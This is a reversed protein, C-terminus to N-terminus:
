GGAVFHVWSKAFPSAKGPIATARQRDDPIVDGTERSQVLPLQDQIDDDRRRAPSRDQGRPMYARGPESHAM